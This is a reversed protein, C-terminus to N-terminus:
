LLNQGDGDGDSYPRPEPWEWVRAGGVGLRSAYPMKHLTVPMTGLLSLACLSSCPSLCLGPTPLLGAATHCGICLSPSSHVATHHHCTYNHCLHSYNSHGSLGQALAGPQAHSHVKMEEPTTTTEPAQGHPQTDGHKGSDKQATGEHQGTLAHTAKSSVTHTQVGASEGLTARHRHM